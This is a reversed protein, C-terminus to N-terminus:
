GRVAGRTRATPSFAFRLAVGFHNNFRLIAERQLKRINDRKEMVQGVGPGFVGEFSKGKRKVIAGNNLMWTNKAFQNRGYASHTTGLVVGGGRRKRRRGGLSVSAGARVEEGGWRGANFPRGYGTVTTELRRRSARRGKSVTGFKAGATVSRGRKRLKSVPIGMDKSVLELAKKQVNNATRNLATYEAFNVAKADLLRLGRAGQPFKIDLSIM